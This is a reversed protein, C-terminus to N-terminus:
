RALPHIWSRHLIRERDPQANASRWCRECTCPGQSKGQHHRDDASFRTTEPRQDIQVLFGTLLVSIRLLLKFHAYMHQAIDVFGRLLSGVCKIGSIGFGHRIDALFAAPWWHCAGTKVRLAAAATRQENPARLFHDVFDNSM